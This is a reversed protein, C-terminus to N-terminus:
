ELHELVRIEHVETLTELGGGSAMKKMMEMQPGMQSMIMDRQSEPMQELQKEFEALQKQAEQMEKQQQKIKELLAEKHRVEM